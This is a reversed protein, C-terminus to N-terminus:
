RLMSGISSAMKPKSPQHKMFGLGARRGGVHKTLYLLRLMACPRVTFRRGNWHVDCFEGWMGKKAMKAIIFVATILTGCSNWQVHLFQRTLFFFCTKSSFAIMRQFYRVFQDFDKIPVGDLYM